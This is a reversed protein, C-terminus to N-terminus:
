GHEGGVIVYISVKPLFVGIKPYIPNPNLGWVLALSVLVEGRVAGLTPRSM